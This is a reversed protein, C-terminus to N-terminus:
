FDFVCQDFLAACDSASALGNTFCDHVKVRKAFTLGNFVESCASRGLSPCTEAVDDCGFTGGGPLCIPPLECANALFPRLCERNADVAEQTCRADNCFCAANHNVWPSANSATWECVVAGRVTTGACSSEDCSNCAGASGIVVNPTCGLESFETMVSGNDCGATGGQAVHVASDRPGSGNVSCSAIGVLAAVASVFGFRVLGEMERSRLMDWALAYDPGRALASKPSSTVVCGTPPDLFHEGSSVPYRDGPCFGSTYDIPRTHDDSASTKPWDPCRGSDIPTQADGAGIM